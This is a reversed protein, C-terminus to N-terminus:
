RGVLRRTTTQRTPEWPQSKAEVTAAIERRPPALASALCAALTQKTETYREVSEGSGYPVVRVYFGDPKRSFVVDRAHNEGLHEYLLSDITCTM